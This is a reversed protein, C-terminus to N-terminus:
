HVAAVTRKFYVILFGVVFFLIFMGDKIVLLGLIQRSPSSGRVSCLISHEGM